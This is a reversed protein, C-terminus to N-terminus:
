CNTPEYITKSYSVSERQLQSIVDGDQARRVLTQSEQKPLCVFYVTKKKMNEGSNSSDSVQSVGCTKVQDRSFCNSDKQRQVLHQLSPHWIPNKLKEFLSSVKTPVETEKQCQQEEQRMKQRDSEPIAQCNDADVTFTYAALQPKSMVCKKTSKMDATKEGNLSGCLGMARNKLQTSAAKLEVTEGDLKLTVGYKNNHITFVGDQYRTVITEKDQSFRKVEGQEVRFSQGNVTVQADQNRSHRSQKRIEIVYKQDDFVATAIQQAQSNKLTVLVRPKESRESLLVQECEHAKYNYHLDSFTQVKNGEIVCNAPSKYGTLKQRITSVISEKACIPLAYSLAKGLRVKRAQVKYGTSKQHFELDLLHGLSSVHADIEIEQENGSGTSSQGAEIEQVYQWFYGKVANAVMQTKPDRALETPVHFQINLRDMSSAQHRAQKCNRSLRYGQQEDQQCKVAEPSSRAYSKQKESQAIAIVGKIAKKEEQDWKYEVSAQIQTSFQENLIAQSDWTNSPRKQKSEAVVDMELTKRDGSGQHRENNSMPRDLKYSLQVRTLDLDNQKQQQRLTAEVVYQREQEQTQGRLQAKMSVSVARGSKSSKLEYKVHQSSKHRLKCAEKKLQCEHHDKKAHEQCIEYEVECIKREKQCKELIEEALSNVKESTLENKEQRVNGAMNQLQQTQKEELKIIQQLNQAFQAKEKHCEQVIQASPSSQIKEQAQQKITSKQDPSQANEKAIRELEEEIKFKNQHM